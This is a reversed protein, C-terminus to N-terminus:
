MFIRENEALWFRTNKKIYKTLIKSFENEHDTRYTVLDTKKKGSSCRVWDTNSVTIDKSGDVVNNLDQQWSSKPNSTM